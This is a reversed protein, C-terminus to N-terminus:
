QEPTIFVPTALPPRKQEVVRGDARVLKKPAPRAKRVQSSAPSPSPAKDLAVFTEYDYYEALFSPWDAWEQGGGYTRFLTWQYIAERSPANFREGGEAFQDNMTSNETPRYWGTNAYLAGEFVGLGEDAYRADALFNHWRITAPDSVNDVNANEGFNTWYPYTSPASGPNSRDANYEDALKGIGHGLTEHVFTLFCGGYDPHTPTYAVTHGWNNLSYFSEYCTGGYVSSNMLVGIVANRCDKGLVSNMFAVIDTHNGSVISTQGPNDHWTGFKTCSNTMVGTGATRSHAYVLWVNYYEALKDYPDTHIFTEACTTLYTELTGGVTNNEESFGDGTLILDIGPGKTAAHYLVVEGDPHVPGTGDVDSQYLINPYDEVYSSGDQTERKVKEHQPTFRFYGGGPHYYKSDYDLLSAAPVKITFGSFACGSLDLFTFRDSSIIKSPIEEGLPYCNNFSLENLAPMDAIWEPLTGQVRCNSMDFIELKKLTRLAEPIPASVKEGYDFMTFQKLNPLHAIDELTTITGGLPYYEANLFLYEIKKLEYSSFEGDGNSDSYGNSQILLDRFATSSFVIPVFPNDGKYRIEADKAYGACNILNCGERLWIISIGWYNSRSTLTLNQLEPCMSLDIEEPGPGITDLTLNKLSFDEAPLIIGSYPLAKCMGISLTALNLSSVKVKALAPCDYIFLSALVPSSSLDLETLEEGFGSLSLHWLNEFQSFDVAPFNECYVISLDDLKPCNFYIGEINHLRAINLSQLQTNGSLDLESIASTGEGTDDHLSLRSLKPFYELGQVSKIQPNDTLSLDIDTVAACEAESLAGDGNKDFQGLLWTRFAADPIFVEGAGAQSITVTQSLGLAPASIVVEGARASESTNEAIQLTVVKASMAKTEIVSIWDCNSEAQIEVSSRSRLDLTQARASLKYEDKFDAEFGDVGDQRITVSQSLESSVEGYGEFTFATGASIFYAVSADPNLYIDYTGAAIKMNGGDQALPVRSQAAISTVFYNTAGYNVSWAKDRRFKFEDSDVITVGFVAHLRGDTKMEIDQTWSDGGITGILSWNGTQTFEPQSTTSSGGTFTIVCERIDTDPNADVTFDYSITNMGKTTVQRVWPQSVAVNLEVNTSAEISITGGDAGIEHLAQSIVLAGKPMQTVTVTAEIGNATNKFSIIGIREDVGENAEAKFTYTHTSMSKTTVESLWDGGKTIAMVVDVNTNVDVTFTGGETKMPINESSLVISPSAAEQYVTIAESGLASKVTVTGERKRTDENPDVTFTTTKTTLAKTTSQHIWDASIEFSYEVNATVEISFNGGEAGFQTKSSTQTLADKQKQTITVSATASGCKVRLTASREDPTDNPEVTVTVTAKGATGSAPSIGIWTARDNSPTVTWDGSATFSVTVSGGAAEVTAASASSLTLEDKSGQPQDGGAPEQGCSFVFLAAILAFVARKM